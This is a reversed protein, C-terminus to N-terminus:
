QPVLCQDYNIMTSMKEGRRSVLCCCFESASPPEMHFHYEYYKRRGIAMAKLTLPTSIDSLRGNKRLKECIAAPSAM